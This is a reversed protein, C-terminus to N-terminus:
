LFVQHSREGSFLLFLRILIAVFATDLLASLAFFQLSIESSDLSLRSGDTGMPTRALMLGGFILLQTPIGCVLFVQLAALWRSVRPGDDPPGTLSGPPAELAADPMDM